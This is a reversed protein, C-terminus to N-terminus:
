QKIIKYYIIDPYDGAVWTLVPCLWLEHIDPYVLYHGPDHANMDINLLRGDDDSRPAQFDVRITVEKKGQALKELWIDAGEVMQLDALQGGEQLYEPLDAFWLGGFDKYFRIVKTM